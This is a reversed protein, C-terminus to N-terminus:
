RRVAPSFARLTKPFTPSPTIPFHPEGPYRAKWDEMQQSRAKARLWTRTVRAHTCVTTRKAGLKALSDAEENGPIGCHVPTWLGIVAWGASSLERIAELAKRGYETNEPNNTALTTLASPNDVCILITRPSGQVARLGEQIAHIEADYVEAKKGLCCNGAM